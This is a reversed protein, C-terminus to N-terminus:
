AKPSKMSHLISQSPKFLFPKKEAATWTGPSIVRPTVFLDVHDKLPTLSCIIDTEDYRLFLLVWRLSYERQNDVQSSGSHGTTQYYALSLAAEPVIGRRSDIFTV